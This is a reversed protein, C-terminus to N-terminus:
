YFPRCATRATLALLGLLSFRHFIAFPLKLKLNTLITDNIKEDYFRRGFRCGNVPVKSRIERYQCRIPM